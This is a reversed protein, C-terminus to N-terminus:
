KLVSGIVVDDTSVFSDRHINTTVFLNLSSFAHIRIGRSERGLWLSFEADASAYGGPFDAPYPAPLSPRM